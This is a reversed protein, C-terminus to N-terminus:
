TYSLQPYFDGRGAPTHDFIAWMPWLFDVHRPDQGPEPSVSYLFLTDGGEEFLQSLRVSRVAQATTDWEQFPYDAPVEGGLALGSRLAAVKGDLARLEMEARLLEDRARRYDETESPFRKTHLTTAPRDTAM